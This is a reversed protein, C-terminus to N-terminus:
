TRSPSTTTAVEPWVCRAPPVSRMRTMVTQPARRAGPVCAPVPAAIPKRHWAMLTDPTVISGIASLEKRGLRNASPVRPGRVVYSISTTPEHVFATVTPNM